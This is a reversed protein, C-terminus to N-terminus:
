EFFANESVICRSMILQITELIMFRFLHIISERKVFFIM